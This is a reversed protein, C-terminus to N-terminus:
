QRALGVAVSLMSISGLDIGATPFSVADDARQQALVYLLPLYHEPTPISLRAAQGAQDYHILPEHEGRTIHDRVEQEFQAAWDYPSSTESRRMTRLNHVVNGSAAILIGEDRLPALRQALAYHYEPPQTGDLSLQVVPVDAHPYAHVLVGWTGHDLGWSLDQHVQAPALLDATRQALAASGPAPYEVDFLAQPFGGFDHITRPADMATVATGRTYWHASIMLIGRPKPIATGLDRWARAYATDEIANMPSGHGFFVAPMRTPTNM